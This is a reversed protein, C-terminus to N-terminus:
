FLRILADLGDRFKALEQTNQKIQAKSYVALRKLFKPAYNFVAVNMVMKLAGASRLKEVAMAYEKEREAQWIEDNNRIERGFCSNLDVASVGPAGFRLTYLWRFHLAASYQEDSIISKQKCIDIPESTLGKARRAQLELTGLDKQQRLKIETNVANKPRGRRSTFGM